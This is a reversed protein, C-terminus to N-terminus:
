VLKHMAELETTGVQDLIKSRLKRMAGLWKDYNGSKFQVFQAVDPHPLILFAEEDVGQVVKEALTEPSMVNPLGSGAKGESYGLMPTAVYQPCIVSVKIGDGGHTIALSEAFGIAAHKTASYAADGIQSLLGAASAMQLLYGDGREIMSPLVARAAYVHAMVHINWCRNWVDNNASASHTPEGLCIGANSCFLDVPGFKDEVAAVVAQVDAEKTVDCGLGLGGFQSATTEAESKVLDAVTVKAGEEAFKRALAAGIGRAGGTVVVTKDKLKM